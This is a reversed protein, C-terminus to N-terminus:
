FITSRINILLTNDQGKSIVTSNHKRIKPKIGGVKPIPAKCSLRVPKAKLPEVRQYPSPSIKTYM